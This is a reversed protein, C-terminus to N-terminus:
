DVSLNSIDNDQYTYLLICYFFFCQSQSLVVSVRLYVRTKNFLVQKLWGVVHKLGQSVEATTETNTTGNEVLDGWKSRLTAKSSFGAM